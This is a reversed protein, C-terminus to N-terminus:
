ASIIALNAPERQVTLDYPLLVIECNTPTVKIYDFGDALESVLFDVYSVYGNTAGITLVNSAWSATQATWAATGAATQEYWTGPQGFGNGPTWTTTSGGYSKAAVVTLSTTATSTAVALVGCGSCGRLSVEGAASGAFMPNYVRGLARMGAM